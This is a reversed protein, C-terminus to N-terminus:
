IWFVFIWAIQGNLHVSNRLNAFRAGGTRGGEITYRYNREISGDFNLIAVDLTKCAVVNVCFKCESLRNNPSMTPELRMKKYRELSVKPCKSLRSSDIDQTHSYSERETTNLQNISGGDYISVM